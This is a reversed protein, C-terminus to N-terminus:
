PSRRDSIAQSVHRLLYLFIAINVSFIILKPLTIGKILEFIEPPISIGVLGLVLLMAWSQQYWLGIAEIATVLAYVGAVIGSLKLKSPEIAILQNVLWEIIFFKTKLVYVKSFDVLEQHNKLAFISAIATIALLLAEFCKYLVITLLATPRQRNM